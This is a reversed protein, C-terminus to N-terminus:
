VNLTVGVRKALEKEISATENDSTLKGIGILGYIHGNFPLTTGGRRGIFLPYNGFNGTGKDQLGNIGVVGNRRMTSLGGSIDHKISLVADDPALYTFNRAAAGSGGTSGRALSIYGNVGLDTGAVLYFSGTNTALNPSLEAIIQGTDSLKTVGAFLSLKDTATFDISSTQLFDDAGDFALYNQDTRYGTLHKISINDLTGTDSGNCYAYIRTVSSTAVFTTRPAGSNPIAPSFGSKAYLLVRLLSTSSFDLEYTGGVVTPIDQYVGSTSGQATISLVGESVTSIADGRQTWNTLGASFDGNVILNNGLIPTQQLIPRSASTTQYAHNGALEKLYVSDLTFAYDAGTAAQTQFGVSNVSKGEVIASYKGAGKVPITAALAGSMLIRVQSVSTGVDSIEIEVKFFKGNISTSVVGGLNSYSGTGDFRAKGNAISWGAGKNWATDSEFNGNNIITGGLTLSKSKDLMLGVPQGAATVPITGAADQWMTTLDNPDYAFGQAGSHFIKKILATLGKVATGLMPIEGMGTIGGGVWM